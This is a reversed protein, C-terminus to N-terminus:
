AKTIKVACTKWGTTNPDALDKLDILNMADNANVALPVFLQGAAIRNSCDIKRKIEGWRTEIKV